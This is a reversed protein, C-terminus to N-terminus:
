YLPLQPMNSPLVVVTKIVTTVAAQNGIEVGKTSQSAFFSKPLGTAKVIFDIHFAPHTYFHASDAAGCSMAGHYLGVSNLGALQVVGNNNIVVASGSDGSCTTRDPTLNGITCVQPGDHTQFSSVFGQCDKVSGTIALVGRLVTRVVATPETIGWGMAMLSQLPQIPGMYIPILATNANFPLTPVRIVAMDYIGNVNNNVLYSPHPHVETARVTKQQTKNMSGYGIEFTNAPNIQSTSNYICHAATLVHNPSIITGGCLYLMGHADYRTVSVGYPALSKPMLFGNIVRKFLRTPLAAAQAAGALCASLAICAVAVALLRM